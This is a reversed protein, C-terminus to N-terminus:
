HNNKCRLFQVPISEWRIPIYTPWVKYSITLYSQKKYEYNLSSAAAKQYLFGAAAPTTERSKYPPRSNIETNSFWFPGMFVLDVYIRSGDGLKPISYSVSIDDAGM